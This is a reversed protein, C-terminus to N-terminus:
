RILFDALTFHISTEKSGSYKDSEGAKRGQIEYAPDDSAESVVDFFRYLNLTMRYYGTTSNVDGESIDAGSISSINVMRPLPTGDSSEAKILFSFTECGVKKMDAILNRTIIFNAASKTGFTLSYGTKDEDKPAEAYHFYRWGDGSAVTDLNKYVNLTEEDKFLRFNKITVSDIGSGISNNTADRLELSFFVDAGKPDDFNLRDYNLFSVFNDVPITFGVSSGNTQIWSNEGNLKAGALPTGLVMSGITVESTKELVADVHFYIYKYGLEKADAIVNGGMSFNTKIGVKRNAYDCNGWGNHRFYRWFTGESSLPDEVNGLYRNDGSELSDIFADTPQGMEVIQGTTPKTFTREHNSCSVWYEKNGHGKEGPATMTYHNWIEAEGAEEAGVFAGKTGALVSGIATLSLLGASILLVSKKKM